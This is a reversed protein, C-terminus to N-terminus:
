IRYKSKNNIIIGAASIPTSNNEPFSIPIMGVINMIM